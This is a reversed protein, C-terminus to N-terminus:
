VLETETPIINSEMDTFTFASFRCYSATVLAAGVDSTCM